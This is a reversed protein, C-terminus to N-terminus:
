AARDEMEFSVLFYGGGIAKLKPPSDAVFVFTTATGTAPHVWDFAQAGCKCTDSWFTMFTARQTTSLMLQCQFRSWSM